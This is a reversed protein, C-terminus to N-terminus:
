ACGLAKWDTFDQWYCYPFGDSIITFGANWRAFRNLRRQVYYHLTPDSMHGLDVGLFRGSRSTQVGIRHNHATAVNCLELDAIESPTKGGQGSFNSPHGVVWKKAPDGDASLMALWDMNTIHLASKPWNDGFASNFVRKLTFPADLKLGLREDHNGNVIWGEDFFEGVARYVQAGQELVDDLDEVPQNKPHRSICTFDWSDGAMVFRRIHPFYRRCVYIARRLMIQSHHPFHTDSFLLANADPIVLPRAFQRQANGPVEIAGFDIEGRVPMPRRVPIEEDIFPNAMPLKDLYADRATIAEDETDFTDLYRKSLITRPLVVQFKDGHPHIYRMDTYTM